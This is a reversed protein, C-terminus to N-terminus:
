LMGACLPGSSGSTCRSILRVNASRRRIASCDSAPTGNGAGSCRAYSTESSSRRRMYSAPQARPPMLESDYAKVSKWLSSAAFAVPASNM